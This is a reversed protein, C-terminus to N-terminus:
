GGVRCTHCAPSPSCSAPCPSPVASPLVRAVAFCCSVLDTAAITTSLHCAAAGAELWVRGFVDCTAPLGGNERRVKDHFERIHQGSLRCSTLSRLSTLPLLSSTDFSDAILGAAPAAGAVTHLCVSLDRLTTLSAITAVSVAMAAGYVRLAHM